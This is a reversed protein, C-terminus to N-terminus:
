HHSRDSLSFIYSKNTSILDSYNSSNNREEFPLKLESIFIEKYEEKSVYRAINSSEPIVVINHKNYFAIFISGTKTRFKNKSHKLYRTLATWENKFIIEFEDQM